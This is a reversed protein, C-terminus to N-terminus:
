ILREQMYKRNHLGTLEDTTSLTKLKDRLEKIKLMNKTRIVLENKDIPTKKDEYLPIDLDFRMLSKRYTETDERTASGIAPVIYIEGGAQNVHCYEGVPYMYEDVNAETEYVHSELLFDLLGYRSMADEPFLSAVGPAELDFDLVVIKKGKRGVGGKFSYFSVLKSSLELKKDTRQKGDWYANTLYKEFVWIGKCVPESDKKWEQIQEGVFFNEECNGCYGLWSDIEEKVTRELQQLIQDNGNELYINIKGYVDQIIDIELQEEKVIFQKSVNIAKDLVENYHIM